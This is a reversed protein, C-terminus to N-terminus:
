TEGTLVLGPGARYPTQGDDPPAAAARAENVLRVLLMAFEIAGECEVRITEEEHGDIMIVAEDFPSDVALLELRPLTSSM